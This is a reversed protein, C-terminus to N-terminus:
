RVVERKQRLKIQRWMVVLLLLVVASAVLYEAGFVIGTYQEALGLGFGAGIVAPLNGLGSATVIAFSRISYVSGYFPQIVWIMAVLVGAAGCIAANLAFTIAYVRDTNIGM